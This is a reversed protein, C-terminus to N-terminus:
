ADTQGSGKKLKELNYEFNKCYFLQVGTLAFKEPTLLKMLKEELEMNDDTADLLDYARRFLAMGLVQCCHAQLMTIQHLLLEEPTMRSTDEANLALPTSNREGDAGRPFIHTLTHVVLNVMYRPDIPQLTADLDVVVDDDKVPNKEKQKLSKLTKDKDFDKKKDVVTDSLINEVGKTTNAWVSAYKKQKDNLTDMLMTVDYVSRDEQTKGMIIDRFGSKAMTTAFQSKMYPKSPPTMPKKFTTFLSHTLIVDASPRSTSEKCLMNELLSCFERSYKDKPMPPLEGHVIKFVLQQMLMADFPRELTSMEYICVGMAWIDSKNDYPKCAFIEPSMYYPSGCFTVAKANPRELVKALGLDGLKAVKEPGTLFVNQTKIDRHLVRREHLYQLGSCIQRFWRVIQDESFSRGNRKEILESLDGGDCFETVICLAGKEQFSDIYAIINEHKFDSLLRAEREAAEREEQPSKSLDIVKMAYQKDPDTKDSCLFVKGFAGEGLTRELKFEIPRAATAM